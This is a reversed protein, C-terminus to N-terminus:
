SVAALGEERHVNGHSHRGYQEHWHVPLKYWHATRWMKQLSRAVPGLKPHSKIHQRVTFALKEPDKCQIRFCKYVAMLEIALDDGVHHVLSDFYAQATDKQRLDGPPIGTLISSLELFDDMMKGETTM